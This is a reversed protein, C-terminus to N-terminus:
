GESRPHRLPAVSTEGDETSPAPHVHTITASAEDCGALSACGPPAWRLRVEDGPALEAARRILAGEARYVVAYGRAMVRLPSLADLREARSRAQLRAATLDARMTRALRQSSEEVRRRAAVVQERGKRGLRYELADLRARARGLELAPNTRELRQRHRQVTSGLAALRSRQAEALRWRLQNLRARREALLTEPRFRELQARLSVLRQRESRICETWSRGLAREQDVLANRLSSVQQRPDRLRRERRGLAERARSLAGGIAQRLRTRDTRLGDLLAELEPAVLEAAASPTPARLDAVGDAITFDVEHGVASVVPVPAAAIARAVVEENFTWLDEASGGGRTVVIVEVDTRGLRQLARVVEEAAGPGQVRAHCLLVSVRPNRRHLVRLFDHLAAGSRSTVVGIRRALLPLPRAPRIRNEGMLGEATLREKLQAFALALAGAGSPEIRQVVLNYQGRKEYVDLSGEVIVEMGEELRFRTRRAVSAWMKADISAGADKLQFFVHGSAHAGKFNSVEGRVLVHGFGEVLTGKVLRTLETVTWIPREAPRPRTPGPSEIRVVETTSTWSTVARPEAVGGRSRVTAGAFRGPPGSVSDRLPANTAAPPNPRDEVRASDGSPARTQEPRASSRGTGDHRDPSVPASEAAPGITLEPGSRALATGDPSPGFLDGQVIDERSSVVRRVKKVPV